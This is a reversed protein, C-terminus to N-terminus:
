LAYESIQIFQMSFNIIYISTTELCQSQLILSIDKKYHRVPTYGQRRRAMIKAQRQEFNQAEFSDYIFNKKTNIPTTIVLSEHLIM